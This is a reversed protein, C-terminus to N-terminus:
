ICKEEQYKSLIGTGYEKEPILGFVNIEDSKQRSEFESDNKKIINRYVIIEYYKRNYRDSKEYSFDWVHMEARGPSGHRRRTQHFYLNGM